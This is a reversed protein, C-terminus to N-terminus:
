QYKKREWFNRKYFGFPPQLFKYQQGYVYSKGTDIVKSIWTERKFPILQIIPTGAPITGEFDKKMVFPFNVPVPHKDCDVVGSFSRFPLDDRNLPHVFLVSYGRPTKIQWNNIWKHPQEDFSEGIDIGSVQSKHHDSNISVIAQTLVKNDNKNWTVDATLPIMYGSSYADIFPICKKVSMIGDNVNSMNKFWKPIFTVSPRPKQIDLKTDISYFKILKKM